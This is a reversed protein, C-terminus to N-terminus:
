KKANKNSEKKKAIASGAHGFFFSVVIFVLDILQQPATHGTATIVCYTVTLALALLGSVIVNQEWLEALKNLV